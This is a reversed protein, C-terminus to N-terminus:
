TLAPESLPTTLRARFEVDDPHEALNIAASRLAPAKEQALLYKRVKPLEPDPVRGLFELESFIAAALQHRAVMSKLFAPDAGVLLQSVLHETLFTTEPKLPSTVSQDFAIFYM